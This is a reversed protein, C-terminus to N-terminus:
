LTRPDEIYTDLNEAAFQKLWELYDSMESKTLDRAREAKTDHPWMGVLLEDAEDRTLRTGEERLEEMICPLVYNYYYGQQLETSGSEYISFTAIVRKGKNESLFGNVRDMPLLLKGKDNIVGSETIVTKM